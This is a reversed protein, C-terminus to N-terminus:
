LRTLLLAALRDRLREVPGRDALESRTIERARAMDHALMEELRVPLGPGEVVLNVEYSHQLSQRDLNSTGILATAGDFVAAKAHMMAQEYEFARVGVPLLAALRDRAAWRLLPHDTAGALLIEVRVGRVAADAIAGRLRRGPVFYPTAFRANHRARELAGILLDRMRRRHYTPGDAVVAVREGGSQTKPEALGVWPRDPGDARFWSELFVADLLSVAPGRLRVHADRWGARRGLGYWYEDGVNMGGVFGVREDVCLIKRHDRRRPAWRPYIRGLPNFVVADGGAQRLEDLAGPDLGLSGFGDVLLRVEVGAAAREALADLFRRGIEDARFIYTELHVRQRAGRVAELMAELAPRGEGYLDIRNGSTFRVDTARLLRRLPLPRRVVGHRRLGARLRRRGPGRVSGPGSM